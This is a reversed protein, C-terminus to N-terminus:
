KIIIYTALQREEMQLVVLYAGPAIGAVSGEQELKHDKKYLFEESVVAGSSNIIYQRIRGRYENELAIMFKGPTPNPYFIFEESVYGNASGTLGAPITVEDSMTYCGKEDGIMVSYSGLQNNAVFVYENEGEIITGEHFWYYYYASDNSCALYWVVPGYSYIDPKPPAEGLLISFPDSENSCWEDRVEVSYEGDTFYDSTSSSNMGPLINGNKKWVYSYDDETSTVSLVIPLTDNCAGELYNESNIIPKGPVDKVLVNIVPSFTGCGSNNKVQLRFEGSTHTVYQSSSAGEVLAADNFWQYTMGTQVPVGMTLSDGKCLNSSGSLALSFDDPSQLFQLDITNVSLAECGYENEVQLSYSGAYVTNLSNSNYGIAGDNLKWFYTLGAVAEASLEVTDNKCFSLGSNSAITPQDPSSRSFVSLTDSVNSCGSETDIISVYYDGEEEVVLYNEDYGAIDVDNQRWTYSNQETHTTSLMINEGDCLDLSGNSSILASPSNWVDVSDSKKGECGNSARATLSIIYKGPALYAHSEVHEIGLIPSDDGFDWLWETITTTNSATTNIIEIPVGFCESQATFETLPAPLVEIEVTRSTKEGNENGIELGVKHIGYTQFRHVPDKVSAYSTDSGEIFSWQYSNVPYLVSFSRDEFLMDINQCAQSFTFDAVFASGETGEASWEGGRYSNDVAQVSYYIIEPLPTLENLDIIKSLSQGANGFEVVQRTGGAISMPALIEGGGPTTGVRVNYSLGEDPTLDDTARDWSIELIKDILVSGVNAPAQPPNNPTDSNNRYVKGKISLDLDGDGDFDAQSCQYTVENITSFLIFSSYGNNIYIETREGSCCIDLLGDNNYDGWQGRTVKPLIINSQEIFSNGGSNLFVKSITVTDQKGLLLIDPYGDSNYDGFEMTGSTVGELQTDVQESFVGDGNNRFIRTEYNGFFDGYLFLDLDGDADYDCTTVDGADMIPFSNETQESFSNDSNTYLIKIETDQNVYTEALIDLDGDCDLDVWFVEGVSEAIDYASQDSFYGSNNRYVKSYNQYNIDSGSVILDLDEDNDYDGWDANYITYQDDMTVVLPFQGNGQNQFVGERNLADIRGDANFDGWFIDNTTQLDVTNAYSFLAETICNEPNSSNEQRLYVENGPTGSYEVVAVRYGTGNALGSVDVENGSGKYVCYWSSGAQDGQGYVTDAAYTLGDVLDPFGATTEGVFVLCNDRDGRTWNLKFSFMGIDTFEVQSAQSETITFTGLAFASGAFANDISQVGWYYTGAPYSSKLDYSLRMGANGREALKRYGNQLNSMAPLLDQQGPTSGVFVNYSLDSGGTETDSAEEWSLTANQGDVVAVPNGPTGPPINEALINNRYFRTIRHISTDMGYLFIDPDGDNDFDAWTAKSSSLGPLGANLPDFTEDGNNRYIETTYGADTYGCILVDLEGDINYDGWAATGNSVGPLGHDLVETFGSAGNNRYIHISRTSSYIGGCALMDPDGDHDFDGWDMTKFSYTAIGTSDVQQFMGSGDNSFIGSGRSTFLDLDGDADYDVLELISTSFDTQLDQKARFDNNINEYSRIVWQDPEIMTSILYDIDGDNDFDAWRAGRFSGLDPDIETEDTFTNNGNNKYIRFVKESYKSTGTLIIDLFGDGNYDGWSISGSYVGTLDIHTQETFSNDGNNRYLKTYATNTWRQGILLLDLDDDNDYDGWDWSLYRDVILDQGTIESFLSTDPVTHVLFNDLIWFWSHNGSWRFRIQANSVNRIYKSIDIVSHQCKLTTANNSYVNLWESGNFVQVESMAGYGERFYQDFELLIKESTAANFAPSTLFVEEALENNSYADSDFVAFPAAITTNPERRGPNDFRWLDTQPDGTEVDVTWGAPPSSGSAASFDEDIFTTQTLGCIPLLLLTISYILRNLM